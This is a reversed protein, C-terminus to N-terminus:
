TYVVDTYEKANYHLVPKLNYTGGIDLALEDTERLKIIPVYQHDTVIVNCAVEIGDVCALIQTNGKKWGCIVGDQVTAVTEDNTKWQIQKDEAGQLELTYTEYKEVTVSNEQFFMGHSQDGDKQHNCGVAALLVFVCLIIFVSKLANKYRMNM